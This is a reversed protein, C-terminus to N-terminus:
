RNQRALNEIETESERSNKGEIAGRRGQSLIQGSNFMHSAKNVQRDKVTTAKKTRPNKGLQSKERIERNLM